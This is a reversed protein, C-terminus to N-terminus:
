HVARNRRRVREDFIWSCGAGALSRFQTVTTPGM